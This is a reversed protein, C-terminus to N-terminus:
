RETDDGSTGAVLRSGLSRMQEMRVRAWSALRTAALGTLVTGTIGIAGLSALQGPEAFGRLLFSLSVVGTVGLMMLGGMMMARAGSNNTTRFRVRSGHETPELLVHLNGNSWQRFSGQTQLVGKADFTERLQGVLLEWERDTLTRDLEVTHHVGIPIGLARALRPEADAPVLAAREILQPALGAERGIEQLQALTMGESPAMLRPLSEEMEAARKFIDAAEAESYRRETM